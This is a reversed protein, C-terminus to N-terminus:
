ISERFKRIYMGYYITKFKYWLSIVGIGADCCVITLM